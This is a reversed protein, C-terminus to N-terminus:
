ALWGWLVLVPVATGLAAGALVQARDHRGLLVRSWATIPVLALWLLAFAGLGLAAAAGILVASSAACCAHLSIKWRLTVLLMVSCLILGALAVAQLIAPAAGLALLVLALAMALITALFPRTRQSRRSLDFDSVEGRAVLHAVYIAPLLVVLGLYLAIWGASARPGIRWGLAVLALVALLPPSFLVSVAHAFAEVPRRAMMPSPLAAASSLDATARLRDHGALMHQLLTSGSRMSYCILIKM